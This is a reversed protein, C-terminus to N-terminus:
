LKMQGLRFISTGKLLASTQELPAARHGDAPSHAPVSFGRAPTLILMYARTFCSASPPLMCVCVFVCLSFIHVWTVQISLVPHYYSKHNHLQATKQSAKSFPMWLSCLTHGVCQCVTVNCSLSVSVSVCICVCCYYFSKVYSFMRRWLPGNLFKCICM